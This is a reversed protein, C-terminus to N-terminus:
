SWHSVNQSSCNEYQRKRQHEPAGSVPDMGSLELVETSSSDGVMIVRSNLIASMKTTSAKYEVQAGSGRAKSLPVM